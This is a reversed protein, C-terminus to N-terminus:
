IEDLLTIIEQFLKETRIPMSLDLFHFYEELLFCKPNLLLSARLLQQRDLSNIKNQLKVKEDPSLMFGIRTPLKLLYKIRHDFPGPECDFDHWSSTLVCVGNDLHFDLELNDIDSTM